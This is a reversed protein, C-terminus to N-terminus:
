RSNAPDVAMSHTVRVLTERGRENMSDYCAIVQGRRPDPEQLQPARRIGLLDDVTCGFLGALKALTTGKIDVKGYEYNQYAQVTCGLADAVGQQTMGAATRAQRLNDAYPTKM